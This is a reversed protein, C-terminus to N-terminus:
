SLTAPSTDSKVSTTNDLTSCDTAVAVPTSAEATLTITLAPLTTSSTLMCTLSVPATSRWFSIRVVTKASTLAAVCISAPTVM